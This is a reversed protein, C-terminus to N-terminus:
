LGPPIISAPSITNTAQASAVSTLLSIAAAMGAGTVAAAWPISAPTVAGATLTAVLAQAFTKVARELADAWFRTTTLVTM